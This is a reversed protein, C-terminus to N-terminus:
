LPLNARSFREAGALDVHSRQLGYRSEIRATPSPSEDESDLELERLSNILDTSGDFGSQSSSTSEARPEPAVVQLIPSECGPSTTAGAMERPSSEKQKLSSAKYKPSSQAEEISLSEEEMNTERQPIPRRGRILRKRPSREPSPSPRMEAETESDGNESIEHYSLENDDSVIFDDLSDFSDGESQDEEYQADIV